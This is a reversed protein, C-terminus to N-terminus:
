AYMKAFLSEIEECYGQFEGSHYDRPHPLTISVESEPKGNNMLFIREGFFVAEEIDHTVLIITLGLDLWLKQLEARLHLRTFADLSSLPEDLLLIDPKRCLCRALAARQAMGGSLEKPLASARDPLGTVALIHMIEDRMASKELKTKPRPFALALNQEVTLWPLLRLDQFMFGLKPEGNPFGHFSVAGSDPQELGAIM